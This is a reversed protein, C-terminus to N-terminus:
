ELGTLYRRLSTHMEAITIDVPRIVKVFHVKELIQVLQQLYATETDPMGALIEWSCIESRLLVFKESPLPNIFVPEEVEGAEIKIILDLQHYEGAGKELHLYKKGTGSEAESLNDESIDLQDISDPRIKVKRSLSWIHPVSERFVVPTLDDSMFGAGEIAFAVTLSTKGAGSEGLIMVGRGDHVFSSAHFSIIKRQHLLAVLVQGNLYLQVWELDAGDEVSYEVIRGDCAYFSGVGPLQLLYETRNVAVDEDWFLAESVDRVGSSSKIEVGELVIEVTQKLHVM